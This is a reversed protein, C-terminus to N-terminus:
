HCSHTTHLKASARWGDVLGQSRKGHHHPRTRPWPHLSKRNIHTAFGSRQEEATSRSKPTHRLLATNGDHHESMVHIHCARHFELSTYHSPPFIHLTFPPSSEFGLRQEEAISRLKTHTLAFGRPPNQRWSPINRTAM